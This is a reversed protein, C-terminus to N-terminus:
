FLRPPKWPVLLGLSIVAFLGGTLFTAPSGYADWLYGALFSAFFLAIGSVFNFIGFASGRIRPPTTDAVMAALLGQSFGMHLGWFLIGAFAVWYTESFALLIDAVCLFVLGASLIAKRSRRDSLWGAPYSSAAYAINMAVLVLPIYALTLGIAQTKLLLFAESFRALTVFLGIGVLHWFSPDATKLDRISFGELKEKPRRSYEPEKVGFILLAVSIFAPLVAVWLCSRIENNFYFMLLM